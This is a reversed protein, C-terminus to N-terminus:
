PSSAQRPRLCGGRRGSPVRRDDQPVHQPLRLHREHPPRGACEHHAARRPVRPADALQRRHRCVHPPYRAYTMRENAFQTLDVGDHPHRPIPRLPAAICMSQVLPNRRPAVWQRSIAPRHLSPGENRDGETQRSIGTSPSIPISQSCRLRQLKSSSFVPKDRDDRDAMLRFSTPGSGHM